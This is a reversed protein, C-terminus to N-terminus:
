EGPIEFVYLGLDESVILAQSKRAAVETSGIFIGWDSTDEPWRYRIRPRAPDRVDVAWLM